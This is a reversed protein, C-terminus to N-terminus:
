RRPVSVSAEAPVPLPHIEIPAPLAPARPVRAVPASRRHVAPPRTERKAPAPETAMPVPSKKAPKVPEPPPANIIRAIPDMAPGAPPEVPKGNSAINPEATQKNDPPSPPRKAQEAAKQQLEKLQKAQNEVARLTLWGALASVDISRSPDSVPGKLAMFIDPRGESGKQAGALVLRADLAGDTLDLTGLISLKADSGAASFRSLRVQGASIELTGQVQALTLQGGDLVQRVVDSIRSNDVPLGADVARTVADFASPDLGAFEAPALHIAGAGHLSGILAIPSLGSGEFNASLGLVGSVPPRASAPLLMASDAGSLEIKGKASLGDDGSRFGVNGKLMGGAVVGKIDKFAFEDKSFQVTSRFERATVQPILTVRHVKIALEGASDGFVGEGFPEGSWTWATGKRAAAQPMGIAAAIVAAGDIRDADLEGQLRHPRDFSM